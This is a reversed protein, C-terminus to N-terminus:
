RLMSKETQRSSDLPVSYDVDNLDESVCTYLTSIETVLSGESAPESVSVTKDSITTVFVQECVQSTSPDSSAADQAVTPETRLVPNVPEPDGLNTKEERVLLHPAELEQRSEAQVLIKKLLIETGTLTRKDPEELVEVGELTGEDISM